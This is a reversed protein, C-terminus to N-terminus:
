DEDPDGKGEREDIEVCVYSCFKKRGAKVHSVASVISNASTGCMAALEAATDAVAVPLQFDDNTIRMWVKM